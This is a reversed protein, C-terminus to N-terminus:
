LWLSIISQNVYNVCVVAKIVHFCSGCCICELYVRYLPAYLGTKLLFGQNQACYAYLQFCSRYYCIVIAPYTCLKFFLLLKALLEEKLSICLLTLYLYRWYMSVCLYKYVSLYMCIYMSMCVYTCYMCVCVCVTCVYLYLHAFVHMYFYVLTSFTVNGIWLTPPSQPPNAIDSNSLAGDLLEM